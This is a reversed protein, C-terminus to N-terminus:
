RPHGDSARALRLLGQPMALWMWDATAAVDLVPGPLDVRDRLLRVSQTARSQTLVGQTGTVWLTREDIAVRTLQGIPALALAPNPVPASARRPDLQWIGDPTGIVLVSDRWALARVSRALPRAVVTASGRPQAIAVLGAETGAWLTDGVLQLAFVAVNALLPREVGRTRQGYLGVTDSVYQIGRRTGVFVGEGLPALALVQDDVLGHLRTWERVDATRDTTVRVVGRDTGLWLREGRSVLAAPRRGALPTAMTGEIWRWRQLTPALWTLGGHAADLGLGAVWLGDAALALAGAGPELLGYPIARAEQLVPDYRYLGERDTALWLESARDPARAVDRIVPSRLPRNPLPSRLLAGLSSRLQPFERLVDEATDVPRLMAPAPEAMPSAIGVRSIRMWQRGSRVLADGMAGRDFAIRDPVGVVTIRQLQNLEPRYCFVAGPVGIWLADEVPDAAAVTVSQGALEEDAPLPSVWGDRMRDYVGIGGQGVVFVYRRSVAVSELRSLADIRVREERLPPPPAPTPEGAAGAPPVACAATGWIALTAIWRLWRTHSVLRSTM